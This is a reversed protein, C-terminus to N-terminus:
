KKKKKQKKKDVGINETNNSEYYVLTDFHLWQEFEVLMKNAIRITKHGMIYEWYTWWWIEVAQFEMWDANFWWSVNVMPAPDEWCCKDRYRWCGWRPIPSLPWTTPHFRSHFTSAPKQPGRQRHRQYVHSPSSEIQHYVWGESFNHLSLWIPHHCEWYISFYFIYELGGVLTYIYIYCLWWGGVLGGVLGGVMGGVM